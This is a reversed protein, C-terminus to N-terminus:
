LQRWEPIEGLQEKGFLDWNLAITEELQVMMIALPNTPTKPKATAAFLFVTWHKRDSHL